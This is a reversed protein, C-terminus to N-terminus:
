SRARLAQQVSTCAETDKKLLRAALQFPTEGLSSKQEPDAQAELLVRIIDTDKCKVATHLPYKSKMMKKRKVNAGTYGHKILFNNLAKADAEKALRAAEKDKERQEAAAKREEEAHADSDAENQTPEAAQDLIESQKELPEQEPRDQGPREQSEKELHEQDPIEEDLRELGPREPESPKDFRALAAEEPRAELEQPAKGSKRQEAEKQAAEEVEQPWSKKLPTSGNQTNEAQNEKNDKDEAEVKSMDVKVTDLTKDSCSCCPRCDFM